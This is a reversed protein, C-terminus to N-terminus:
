LVLLELYLYEPPLGEESEKIFINHFYIERTSGQWLNLGSCISAVVTKKLFITPSGDLALSRVASVTASEYM